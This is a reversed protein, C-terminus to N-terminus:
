ARYAEVLYHDHEVALDTVESRFQGALALARRQQEAQDVAGTSLLLLDVAQRILEAVSVHQKAALAQLARLQQASLQIYTRIM